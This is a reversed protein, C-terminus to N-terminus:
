LNCNAKRTALPKLRVIPKMRGGPGPSPIGPRAWGPHFFTQKNKKRPPSIAWAFFFSFLAFSRFFPPLFFPLFFYRPFSKSQKKYRTVTILKRWWAWGPFLCELLSGFVFTVLFRHICWAFFWALLHNLLGAIAVLLEVHLDIPVM